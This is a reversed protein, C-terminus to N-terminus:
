HYHTATYCYCYYPGTMQLYYAITAQLMLNTMTLLLLATPALLITLYYTTHWLLRCCSTPQSNTSPRM